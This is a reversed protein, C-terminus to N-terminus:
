NLPKRCNGLTLSTGNSNNFAQKMAPVWDFNKKELYSNVLINLKMQHNRAEEINDAKMFEVIKISIDPNINLTTMIASEFGLAIAGCLITDSGLFVQGHELCPLGKELDGSTFKIGCFNPIEKKAEKMFLAMNLEVQTFQPIHYYYLPIKNCYKSIDKMYGVLQPVTKPKFYLEPLCLIGDVNLLAAHKALEVVDSFPCGSIQVMVLIDIKKCVEMWKETVKKREEVSLSMGEGSTGNVLFASIGKAKLMRAYEEIIGYNISMDELFPTFVPAMLGKFEPLCSM